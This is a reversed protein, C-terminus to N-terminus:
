PTIGWTSNIYGDVANATIQSAYHATISHIGGFLRSMGAQDAMDQWTSFSLTVDAAPVTGPQIASSGAPLIFDGFAATQNSTFSTSYLSQLDYTMMNKTITPGFWKTMTVAFAQTFHSHGSPFDPFPPTVFSARQYPIWQDGSITGNWSSIMQGNYRRRIEQIPRAQMFMYKQGWCVRAGEFLHVALDLLSYMIRTCSFSNSRMYEKWLWIAMLPPPMGGPSSGSWFAAIMKEDDPLNQSINLVADIEADRDTGTAPTVLALLDSENQSTLCSSNIM